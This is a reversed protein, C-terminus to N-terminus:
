MFKVFSEFTMIGDQDANVLHDVVDSLIRRSSSDNPLGFEELIEALNSSVYSRLELPRIKYTVVMEELRFLVDSYMKNLDSRYNPKM